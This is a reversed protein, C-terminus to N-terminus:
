IVESDAHVLVLISFFIYIFIQISDQLFWVLVTYIYIHIYLGFVVREGGRLIIIITLGFFAFKRTLGGL